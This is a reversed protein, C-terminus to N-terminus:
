SDRYFTLGNMFPDYFAFERTGWATDRLATREHFVDRSAYEAFLADLNEVVIRLMPREVAAWEAPDHWQIHLEVDDRVVVAYRPEEPEDQGRLEFGLRDVFWALSRAVDQSPLVPHVAALRVNGSVRPSTM